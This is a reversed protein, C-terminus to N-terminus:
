WWTSNWCKIHIIEGESCGSLTPVIIVEVIDILLHFYKSVSLKLLKITAVM